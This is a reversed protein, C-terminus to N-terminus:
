GDFRRAEGLVVGFVPRPRGSVSLLGLDLGWFNDSPTAPRENRFLPYAAAVLNLSRRHAVLWAEFEATWHAQVAESSARFPSAPGGASWGYESVVIGAHRIGWADILHRLKVVRNEASGANGSYPHLALDNFDHRGGARFMRRYFSLAWIRGEFPMGATVIQASRDVRRIAHDAARLLAAYQAPNPAPQWYFPLNPENWIQWMRIPEKPLKPHERWFVGNPGYRRVAATIFRSFAATGKPRSIADPIKTVKVVRDFPPTTLVVPLWDMRHRAFATMLKDSTMWDFHGRTPELDQWLMPTRYFGIGDSALIGLTCDLTRPHNIVSNDM